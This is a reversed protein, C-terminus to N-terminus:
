LEAKFARDLIAPLLADLEANTEAQIQKLRDVESRMASLEALIRQQASLPPVPIKTDLLKSTELKRTDHTSKEVLDLIRSNYAWFIECLYEPALMPKPYLAKMDQNIAAKERLVASPFTHALIMGRVVVLVAGPQLLKAATQQTARESIHIRSDHLERKKMDKPTIWPIDGEWYIPDAKSPTGGGRITVLDGLPIIPSHEVARDYVLSSASAFFADRESIAQMRLNHAISIHNSLDELRAVIRRQESLPPLPMEISLFTEPSVTERRAGIGRSNHQLEIWIAERKCFWELFAPELRSRNVRFTPFVPSLYWGEFEPSVRAIAGEWAKPQSIVFDDTVLRNYSKYSTNGPLMPGRAFLGRGFSYVGALNIEGLHESPVATDSLAMVEGLQVRSWATSM